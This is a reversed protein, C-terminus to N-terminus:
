AKKSIKSIGRASMGINRGPCRVLFEEQIEIMVWPIRDFIKWKDERPSERVDNIITHIEGPMNQIIGRAIIGFKRKLFKKFNELFKEFSTCQFHKLFGASIRELIWEPTRGQLGFNLYWIVIIWYISLVQGFSKELNKM